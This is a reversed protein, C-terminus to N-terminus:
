TIPRYLLQMIFLTYATNVHPFVRIRPCSPNVQTRLRYSVVAWAWRSTNPANHIVKEQWIIVCVEINMRAKATREASSLLGMHVSSPGRAWGYVGVSPAALQFINFPLLTCILFASNINRSAAWSTTIACLTQDIRGTFQLVRNYENVPLDIPTIPLRYPLQKCQVAARVPRLAVQWIM